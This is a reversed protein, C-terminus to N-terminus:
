KIMELFTKIVSNVLVDITNIKNFTEDELMTCFETCGLIVACDKNALYKLCINKVKTIQLNKDVGMNFDFIIKSLISIDNANPASYNIGKFKYLEGNITEQTGIVFISSVKNKRLFFEVEKPLNIIPAAVEKQLREYYIHITNCVMVIFDIGIDDLEKLGKVYIDLNEESIKGVLEPAPISNIIIQPFDSNSKVFGESQLKRILKSYFNATAEPGIGGLVGIRVKGGYIV